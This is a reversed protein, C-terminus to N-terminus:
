GIFIEVWGKESYEAECTIGEAALNNVIINASKWLQPEACEDGDQDRYVSGRCEYANVYENYAFTFGNEIINEKLNKM